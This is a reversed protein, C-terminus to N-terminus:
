ACGMGYGYMRNGRERDIRGMRWLKGRVNLCEWRNRGGLRLCADKGFGIM